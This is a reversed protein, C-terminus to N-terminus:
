VHARGIKYCNMKFLYESMTLELVADGLYELRENNVEGTGHSSHTLAEKVVTRNKFTYGITKELTEIQKM